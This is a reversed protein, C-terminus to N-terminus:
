KPKTCNGGGPLSSALNYYFTYLKQDSVGMLYGAMMLHNAISAKLIGRERYRKPSTKIRYPLLEIKGLKRCRSVLDVDEMIFLKRFGGVQDYVERRCFLGQDGYPLQFFRSRLNAWLSIADLAPTSHTFTLKFCGLAVSPNLLSKRVHYAFNAPPECDDHVFLLCNGVAHRAGERLQVGRGIPSKLWLLDDSIEHVNPIDETRSGQCVIIEDGPWLQSELWSLWTRLIHPSKLTPVLVSLSISKLPDRQLFQIDEPRDIDQRRETTFVKFGAELLLRRTRLFVNEV